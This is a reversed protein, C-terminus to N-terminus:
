SYVLAVLSSLFCMIMFLMRTYNHKRRRHHLTTSTTRDDSTGHWERAVRALTICASDSRISIHCFTSGWETRRAAIPHRLVHMSLRNPQRYQRDSHSSLAHRRMDIAAHIDGLAICFDSASLKMALVSVKHPAGAHGTAKYLEPQAGGSVIADLSCRFTARCCLQCTRM